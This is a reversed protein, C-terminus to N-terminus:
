RAGFAARLFKLRIGEVRGGPVTKLDVYGPDAADPTVVSIGRSRLLFSYEAPAALLLTFRGLADTTAPPEWPYDKGRPLGYVEVGSVPAGSEADIVTGSVSAKPNKEIALLAASPKPATACALQLGAAFISFGLKRV